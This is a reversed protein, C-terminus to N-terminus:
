ANFVINQATAAGISAGATHQMASSVTIPGAAVGPYNASGDSGFIITGASIRNLEVNTIGLTLPSGTLVDAGGLNIKTGATRPRITVQANSSAGAQIKAAADVNLSDAIITLAATGGTSITTSSALQVAQSVTNGSIGTITVTGGASTIKDGTTSVNVGFGGGVSASSTGQVTVSGTGGASIFGNAALIVGDNAFAAAGSGGAQGVISIPGGGSTVTSNWISVGDCVAGTGLSVGTLSVSGSTGVGITSSDALSVGILDDTNGSRGQLTIGGSTSSITAHHCDIGYFTGTTPTVQQNASLTINGSVSSLAGSAGGSSGMQITKPATISISGTSTANITATIIATEIGTSSLGGSLSFTGLFTVTQGTSGGSDQAVIKSVSGVPNSTAGSVNGSLTINTGNDGITVAETAIGTATYDITLVGSALTATAPALRSEMRQLQPHFRHQALARSGRLWRRLSPSM